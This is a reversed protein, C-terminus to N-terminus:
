RQGERNRHANRLRAELVQEPRDVIRRLQQEAQQLSEARRNRAASAGTLGDPAEFDRDGGEAAGAKANGQPVQNGPTGRTNSRSSENGPEAAPRSAGGGASDGDKRIKADKPPTADDPSRLMGDQWIGLRRERRTEDIQRQEAARAQQVLALNHLADAHDPELRIVARYAAVAGPWQGVLAYANGLNYLSLASKTQVFAGAARYLRGARYEAVGQWVPDDFMYTAERARGDEILKLGISHADLPRELTPLLWGAGAALGLLVLSILAFARSM